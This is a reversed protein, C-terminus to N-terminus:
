QQRRKLSEAYSKTRDKLMPDQVEIGDPLDDPFFSLRQEAAPSDGAVANITLTGLEILRRQEPWAVSPDDLADGKEAMQLLLKM